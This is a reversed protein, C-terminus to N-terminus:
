LNLNDLDLDVEGSDELDVVELEEIFSDQPTVMDDKVGWRIRTERKKLELYKKTKLANTTFFSSRFGNDGIDETGDKWLGRMSNAEEVERFMINVLIEHYSVGDVVTANPIAHDYDIWMGWDLNAGRPRRRGDGDFYGHFRHSEYLLQRPRECLPGQLFGQPCHSM